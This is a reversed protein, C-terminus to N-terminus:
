VNSPARADQGAFRARYGLCFFDSERDPAAPVILQAVQMKINFSQTKGSKVQFKQSAFRRFGPAEVSLQYEGIPVSTEFEGDSNTVLRWQLGEGVILVDARVIRADNIDVVRGKIKGFQKLSVRGAVPTFSAALVAILLVISSCRPM